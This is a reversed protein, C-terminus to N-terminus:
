HWPQALAMSSLGDHTNADAHTNNNNNNNTITTTTTNTTYHRPTSAIGGLLIQKQASVRVGGCCVGSNTNTAGVFV